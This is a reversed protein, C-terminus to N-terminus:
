SHSAEATAVTGCKDHLISQVHSLLNKKLDTGKYVIATTHRTLVLTEAQTLDKATCVLVPIKNKTPHENLQRLIEFGDMEPMMLDLVIFDVALAELTALADKGNSVATTMFNADSLYENILVRSEYEDDVIMCHCRRSECRGVKRRIAELLEERKVPKVLYGAAGESIGRGREEVVSVIIVPISATDPEKRLEYLTDWGSGGPMMIDLTIADPLLSRAKSLAEQEGAATEVRYGDASLHSALLERAAVEDDVVLLVPHERKAPSSLVPKAASGPEEASRRVTFTFRSGKGPESRVSITGGQQEVLKRAIALGLGTGEKIGSSSNGVQRFEEFIIAQDEARIGIGYDQVAVEAFEGHARGEVRVPSGQPTFKIANSLLNYLIQKFRFRDALVRLEPDVVERLEIQKAQALPALNGMVEAIAGGLVFHEPTFEIKGAEIKSLDLVANILKLLHSGGNHIHEVFRKQKALLPGATESSLLESFGLIANLPTRLEHSMSALFQSKLLTAREVERNREELEKQQRQITEDLLKRESVDRQISVRRSYVGNEDPIPTVSFEIWQESGDKRYYILEGRVPQDNALQEQLQAVAKLDTKPGVRIPSQGLAEQRSFGTMRCFADNVYVIKSKQKDDPAVETIQVADNAGTVAAELLRLRNERDSLKGAMSNFAVALQGIEDDPIDEAPVRHALDGAGIRMAGAVLQHIPLTISRVIAVGFILVLVFALATGLLITLITHRNAAQAALEFGQLRIAEESRLRGVLARIRATAAQNDAAVVKARAAAFGKQQRVGIIEALQALKAGTLSRLEALEAQEATTHRSLEELKHLKGHFSALTEAYPKLYSEDGTILYGREGTEADDLDLLLADQAERLAESQRVLAVSRIHHMTSGYSVWGVIVLILLVLSFGGALRQAISLKM